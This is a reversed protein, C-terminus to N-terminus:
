SYPVVINMVILTGATHQKALEGDGVEEDSLEETVSAEDDFHAQLIRRATTVSNCRSGSLIDFILRKPVEEFRQVM